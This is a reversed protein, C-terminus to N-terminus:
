RNEDEIQELLASLRSLFANRDPCCRFLFLLFTVTGCCSKGSELGAYNRPSMLLRAAMQEQTIGLTARTELLVSRFYNKFESYICNRM